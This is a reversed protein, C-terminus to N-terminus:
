KRHHTPLSVGVATTPDITASHNTANVQKASQLTEHVPRKSAPASARAGASSPGCNSRMLIMPPARILSTALSVHYFQLHLMQPNSYVYYLLVNDLAVIVHLFRLRYPLITHSYLITPHSCRRCSRRLDCLCSKIAFDLWTASLPASVAYSGM